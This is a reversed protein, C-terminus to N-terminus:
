QNGTWRANSVKRHSKDDWYGDATMKCEPCTRHMGSCKLYIDVSVETGCNLCVMKRLEKSFEGSVGSREDLKFMTDYPIFREPEPAVKRRM